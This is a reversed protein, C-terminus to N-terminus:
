RCVMLGREALSVFGRGAVVVHDLLKIGVYEAARLLRETLVRDDSSPSPDGTPHNHALILCSAGDVLARRLVVKPDMPCDTWGGMSALQVYLVRHKADMGIVWLHEQRHADPGELALTKSALAAVDAASCVPAGLEGVAEMSSTAVYQVSVKRRAM